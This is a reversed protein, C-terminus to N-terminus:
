QEVQLKKILFKYVMSALGRKYADYKLTKGINFAKDSLIKNTAAKLIETLWIM